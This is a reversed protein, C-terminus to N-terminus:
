DALEAVSPERQPTLSHLVTEAVLRHGEENYHGRRRFPFLALPDGSAQFAAPIDILEVGLSRTVRLVQERKEEDLRAADPEVYREREPLYVLYLRGGWSDVTWKAEALVKALLGLSQELEIQRNPPRRLLGMNRRLNTFRMVAPILTKSEDPWHTQAEELSGLWHQELARDIDAQIKRLGQTFHRDLYRMLLLSTSERNLDGFDNQEYFFWLVVTPKFAAAYERLDALSMLPGKNSNGLNLMAPNRARILAAFSLESPVCTGQAYSDGLVAIDLADSTWIGPPNHFGHEDSRYTIWPGSENCFVTLRDSIGALPFAEANNITIQSKMTGDPQREFLGFPYVAPVADIGELRLDRVVQLQTRTDYEVGFQRALKVLEDIDESTAPTWLTTQKPRLIELVIEALFLALATSFLLLALNQRAAPRLLLSSFFFVSGVTPLGYCVVPGITSTFQRDGIWGYHYFFHVFVLLCLIGGGALVLNAAM